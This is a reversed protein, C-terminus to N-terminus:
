VAGEPQDEGVTAFLGAASGIMSPVADAPELEEAEVRALAAGTAELNVRLDALRDAGWEEVAQAELRQRWFEPSTERQAM